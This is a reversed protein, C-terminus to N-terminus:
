TGVADGIEVVIYEHDPFIEISTDSYTVEFEGEYIGKTDVDASAWPYEVNPDDSDVPPTASLITCLQRTVKLVHTRKLWMSWRVTAGTLTATTGDKNKLRSKLAPADAGTKITFDVM